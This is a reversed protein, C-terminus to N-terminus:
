ALIAVRPRTAPACTSGIRDLWAKVLIANTAISTSERYREAHGLLVSTVSSLILIVSAKVLLYRETGSRLSSRARPRTTFSAKM